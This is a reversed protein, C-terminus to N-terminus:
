VEIWNLVDEVPMKRLECKGLAIPIIETIHGGSRKKDQLTAEYIDKASFNVKTPLGYQVFLGELMDLCEPPCINKRVAARTIMVMGVAVASGHSITFNSLREIAHGITHGLNLLMREGTDFEDREVIDLKMSICTSIVEKISQETPLDRLKSLLTANGLMGYKIVEAMGDGFVNQPLTKLTDTDCLVLAPQHFAGVLNKGGELDIGTKGGVSSDVMALLTTPVQVFAVGRLYTAAVFGTLDGVVGGGLAVLADSRTLQNDALWSLIALYQSGNKSEEGAPFVYSIADFGADAIAIVADKLYLKEVNSDTIIAFKKAKPLIAGLRKGLGPLLGAGVVVDYKKM